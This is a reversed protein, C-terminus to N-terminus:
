CDAANEHRWKEFDLFVKDLNGDELRTIGAQELENLKLDIFEAMRKTNWYSSTEWVQFYVHGDKEIEKKIKGKEETLVQRFFERSEPQCKIWHKPAYDEMDKDYLDNKTIQKIQKLEINMYYVQINYISWMLANADLSRKDSVEIRVDLTVPDKKKEANVKNKEIVSLFFKAIREKANLPYPLLVIKDEAKIEFRAYLEPDYITQFRM